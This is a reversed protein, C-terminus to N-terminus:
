PDMKYTGVIKFILLIDYVFCFLIFIIHLFLHSQFRVLTLFSIELKKYLWSM